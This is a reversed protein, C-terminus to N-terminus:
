GGDQGLIGVHSHVNGLTSLGAKLLDPVRCEEGGGGNEAFPGMEVLTQIIPFMKDKDGM